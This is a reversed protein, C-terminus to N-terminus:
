RDIRDTWSKGTSDLIKQGGKNRVFTRTSGPDYLAYLTVSGIEVALHIRGRVEDTPVIGSNIETELGESKHFEAEVFDLSRSHPLEEANIGVSNSPTLLTVDPGTKGVLNKLSSFIEADDM